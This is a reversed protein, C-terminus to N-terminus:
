APELRNRVARLWSGVRGGNVGFDTRGYKSRSYIALTSRGEGLDILRIDIIDPFRFLRSRQIVTIQWDDQQVLELRPQERLMALVARRLAAVPVEFAPSEAHPRANRCLGPPAVLFQNHRGRLRMTEFDLTRPQAM